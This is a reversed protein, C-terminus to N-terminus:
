DRSEIKQTKKFFNTTHSAPAATASAPTMKSNALRSDATTRGNYRAATLDQKTSLVLNIYRVTYVRLHQISFRRSVVPLQHDHEVIRKSSSTPPQLKVPLVCCVLGHRDRGGPSSM